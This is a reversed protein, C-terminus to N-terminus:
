INLFKKRVVIMCNDDDQSTIQSGASNLLNESTKKNLTILKKQVKNYTDLRAIVEQGIYCGKEFDILHILNLELPNFLSNIENVGYPITKKIRFSKFQKENLENFGEASLIKKLEIKNDKNFILDVSEHKSYFSTKGSYFHGFQKEIKNIVQGSSIFNDFNINKSDNFLHILNLGEIENLEIEEDFTFKDIWEILTKKNEFNCIFTTNNADINWISAIDIIRGNENTFITQTIGNKDINVNNTSLRNILDVSDNGKLSLFVINTPQYFYKQQM